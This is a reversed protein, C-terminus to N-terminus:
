GLLSRVPISGRDSAAKGFNLAVNALDVLTPNRGAATMYGEGAKMLSNLYDGSLGTMANVKQDTLTEGLRRQEASEASTLGQMASSRVTSNGLGRSMLDQDTQAKQQNFRSTIDASQQAGQNDLLGMIDTQRQQYQAPIAGLADLYSSVYGQGQDYASSAQGLVGSLPDNAAAQAEQSSLVNLLSAVTAPMGSSGTWQNTTPNYSTFKLPDFQGIINGSADYTPTSQLGQALAAILAETYASAM